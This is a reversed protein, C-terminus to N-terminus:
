GHLFPEHHILVEIDHQFIIAFRADGRLSPNEMAIGM